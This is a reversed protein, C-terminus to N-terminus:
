MILTLHQFAAIHENHGHHIDVESRGIMNAEFSAWHKRSEQSVKKAGQQALAEAVDFHRRTLANLLQASSKVVDDRDVPVGRKVLLRVVAKHGARAAIVFAWSGNGDVYLAAGRGLLFLFWEPTSVSHQLQSHVLKLM